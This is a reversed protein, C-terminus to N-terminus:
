VLWVGGTHASWFAGYEEEISAVGVLACAMIWVANCELTLCGTCVAERESRGSFNVLGSGSEAGHPGQQTICRLRM